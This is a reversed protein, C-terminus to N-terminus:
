DCVKNTDPLWKKGNLKLEKGLSVRYSKQNGNSHQLILQGENESAGNASWRGDSRSSSAGSAGSMSYGGSSFKYQFSGDSCLWLHQQETYGSGSFYRVIYGGKFYDQWFGSGTNTTQTAVPKITLAGALTRTVKEVQRTKTADASLAIFALGNAPPVIQAAIYASLQPAGVVTYNATYINGAKKLSSAPQLQVSTDLAITNSMWVKLSNEDSAQMAMFINAKLATSELVFMESGSPWAGQWGQPITLGIGTHSSEVYAGAPYIKGQQVEEAFCTTSSLVILLIKWLHM